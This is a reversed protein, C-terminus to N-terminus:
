EKCQWGWGNLKELFENRKNACYGPTYQSEAILQTIGDERYYVVRCPLEAPDNDYYTELRRKLNIGPASCNVIKAGQTPTDAIAPTQAASNALSVDDSNTQKQPSTSGISISVEKSAIGSTVGAGYAQKAPISAPIM